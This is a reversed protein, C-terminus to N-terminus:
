QAIGAMRRNLRNRHIALGLATLPPNSKSKGPQKSSKGRVQRFRIEGETIRRRLTTHWQEEMDKEDITTAAPDFCRVAKKLLADIDIAEVPNDLLRHDIALQASTSKEAFSEYLREDISGAIVLTYITVPKTSTLRWIRHIFQENVDMAWSLSPLIVHACNDFNYGEGM